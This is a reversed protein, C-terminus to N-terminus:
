SFLRPAVIDRERQVRESHETLEREKGPIILSRLEKVRDLTQASWSTAEGRDTTFTLAAGPDYEQAALMMEAIKLRQATVQGDLLDAQATLQVITAVIEARLADEFTFSSVFSLADVAEDREMKAKRYAPFLTSDALEMAASTLAKIKSSRVRENLTAIKCNLAGIVRRCREVEAVANALEEGATTEAASLAALDAAARQASRALNALVEEHELETIRM